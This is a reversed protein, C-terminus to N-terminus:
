ADSDFLINIVRGGRALDALGDVLSKDKNQFSDVGGLGVTPLGLKCMAAAKKEGEVIWIEISPDDVTARWNIDGLPPIYLQNPSGPEQWYKMPKGDADVCPGLLKLRYHDIPEGDFNSYHIRYALVRQKGQKHECPEFGLAKVDAATLGSKKYDAVMLQHITSM